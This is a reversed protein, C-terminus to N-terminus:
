KPTNQPPSLARRANELDCAYPEFSIDAVKIYSGNITVPETLYVPDDLIISIDMGFGNNTLTYRARIHKQESSDIGPTLGWKLDAPFGFTEVLLSGDENIQAISHGMLSPEIDDPHTTQTLYLKRTLNSNQPIIEIRDEYRMWLLYYPHFDYLPLGREKCDYSPNDREHFRAVQENGRMTLPWNSPPLNYQGTVSNNPGRAWTGSFDQSPLNNENGSSVSIPKQVSGDTRRLSKLYFTEGNERVIHDLFIFNKKPNRDPNGVATVNDGIKISDKKWGLRTLTSPTGGEILWTETEDSENTTQLEIYVHPNRWKYDTVRGELTTFADFLFNSRGHHAMVRTTNLSIVCVVLIFITSKM